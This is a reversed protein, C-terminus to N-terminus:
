QIPEPDIFGVDTLNGDITGADIPKAMMRVNIKILSLSQHFVATLM